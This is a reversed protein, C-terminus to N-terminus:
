NVYSRCTSQIKCTMNGKGILLSRCILRKEVNLITRIAEFEAGSDLFIDTVKEFLAQVYDNEAEEFASELEFDLYPYSMDFAVDVHLYLYNLYLANSLLQKVADFLETPCTSTSFGLTINRAHQIYVDFQPPENWPNHEFIVNFALNEFRGLIYPEM